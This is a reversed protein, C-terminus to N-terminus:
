SYPPNVVFTILIKARIQLVSRYHKETGPPRDSDGMSWKLSSWRLVGEGQSSHRKFTLSPCRPHSLSLGTPPM